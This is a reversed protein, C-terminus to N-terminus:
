TGESVPAPTPPTAEEAGAEVPAAEVPVGMMEGGCCTNCCSRRVRRTRCCTTQVPACCRRMRVRRTRCCTTACPAPAATACGCSSQVTYTMPTAVNVSTTFTPTVSQACGVCQAEAQSGALAVLAAAILTAVKKM